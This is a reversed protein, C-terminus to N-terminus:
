SIARFEKIHGAFRERAARPWDLEGDHTPWEDLPSRSTLVFNAFDSNRFLAALERSTEASLPTDGLGELIVVESAALRRFADQDAEPAGDMLRSLNAVDIWSVRRGQRCAAVGLLRALELRAANPRGVILAHEGRGVIGTELLRRFEADDEGRRALFVLADDFAPPLGAAALRSDLQAKALNEKVVMGLDFVFLLVVFDDIVAIATPNTLYQEAGWLIFATGVLLGITRQGPTRPLTLVLATYSFGIAILPWASKFPFDEAPSWGVTHLIRLALLTLATLGAFWLAGRSAWQLAVRMAGVFRGGVSRPQASGTSAFEDFSPESVAPQM